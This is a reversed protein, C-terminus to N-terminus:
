AEPEIQYVVNHNYKRIVDFTGDSSGSDVNILEFDDYKQKFIMELTQEIYRIDNRSRMIISVTPNM